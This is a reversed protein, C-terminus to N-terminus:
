GKGPKTSAFAKRLPAAETSASLEFVSSCRVGYPPTILGNSALSSM